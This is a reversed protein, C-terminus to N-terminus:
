FCPLFRRSASRRSSGTRFTRVPRGCRFPRSAQRSTLRRRASPQQLARRTAAPVPRYRSSRRPPRPCLRRRHRPSRRNLRHPRRRHRRALHRRHSSPHLPRYRLRPGVLRPCPPSHQTRASLPAQAPPPPAAAGRDSSPTYAPRTPGRLRQDRGWGDDCLPGSTHCRETDGALYLSRLLSLRQLLGLGAGPEFQLGRERNSCGRRRKHLEDREQTTLPDVRRGDNPAM